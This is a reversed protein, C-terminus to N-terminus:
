AGLLLRRKPDLILVLTAGALLLMVLGGEPGYGGGTLLVPGRVTAHLLSSTSPVGSDPFGFVFEELLNWALHMGIPLWLGNTVLRAIAALSGYFAVCLCGVLKLWEPLGPTPNVLHLAGFLLGTGVIAGTNGFSRSVTQLAYGRFLTEEFLAVLACLVVARVSWPALPQSLGVKAEYWGCIAFLGASGGVIMTGLVLGVALHRAPARQAFGVSALSRGELRVAGWSVALAAAAFAGEALMESQVLARAGRALLWGLAFTSVFFGLVKGIGLARKRM